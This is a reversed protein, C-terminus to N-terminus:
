SKKYFQDDQNNKNGKGGQTRTPVPLVRLKPSNWTKRASQAQPSLEASFNELSEQKEHM